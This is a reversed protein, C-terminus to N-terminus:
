LKDKWWLAKNLFCSPTFNCAIRSTLHAPLMQVDRGQPYLWSYFAPNRAGEGKAMYPLAIWGSRGATREVQDWVGNLEWYNPCFWPLIGLSPPQRLLTPESPLAWRFISSLTREWRSIHDSLIQPNSLCSCISAQLNQCCSQWPVPPILNTQLAHESLWESGSVGFYASYGFLGNIQEM